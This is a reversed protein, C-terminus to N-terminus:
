KIEGFRVSSYNKRNEWSGEQEHVKTMIKVWENGYNEFNYNKLVHERGQLGMTRRFSPPASYMKELASVFQAGSIRDERIYPVGQSGIIAKSNPFIPIGFWDTGNTIQEQLGGTMNVIIPTGCSLSELTALGFGEADSINITCDAANYMMSLSESPIKQTSIYAQGNSMNLKDIIAHLDQGNPDKPDTHMIITAKDRGIKNLFDNFWWLVSGSQKRRANRNNWFFIFKGKMATMNENRFQQVMASDLPKFINSNVAHPLYIRKVEPVVERLIDDTVKSIAVILDNSLYYGKNFHPAPFNDWVHYYVMPMLPRIENEIMWLWEWFRPDTMFWLIDPRETRIISRVVEPNGYGDVPFVKWDEGYGEVIQPKYENHKVAGGLCVISFKGSQVLAECIYRTQTGVGSPAMPHDALM